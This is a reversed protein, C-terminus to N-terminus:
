KSRKEAAKVILEVGHIAELEIEVIDVYVKFMEIVEFVQSRNIKM